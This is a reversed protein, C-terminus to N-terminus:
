KLKELIDISSSFVTGHRTGEPFSIKDSIDEWKKFDTTRMAGYRHKRYCDYYVYWYRGIKLPTPGEVWLGKPYFPESAKSWPGTVKNSTALSLNKGSTREDKLVMIYQKDNRTITSGIVSFGPEFLLRIDWLAEGGCKSSLAAKLLYPAPPQQCKQWDMSFELWCPWDQLLRRSSRKGNRGSQENLVKLNHKGFTGTLHSNVLTLGRREGEEVNAMRILFEGMGCAIDVVRADPSLRLLEVLQTLKEESTPNCVVHRRHTIDFFKWIDM